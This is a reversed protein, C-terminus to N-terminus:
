LWSRHRITINTRGDPRIGILTIGPEAEYPFLLAPPASRLGDAWNYAIVSDEDSDLQVEIRNFHAVVEGRGKIFSSETANRVRFFVVRDNRFSAREEFYEPHNRFLAKYGDQRSTVMSVNYLRFFEHMAEISDRWPRPPYDYEIQRPDFHYYDCAMMERGTLTPLFAVHGGGYSHVTRGVFLLRTGPPVERRIFDVMENYEPSAVQYRALSENNWLRQINWGTLILLAVLAARPLATWPSRTRLLHSVAVSAPLVAVFLMPIMSRELQLIDVLVPGFGTLCGFGILVPMFFRRIRRRPSVFVGGIGLFLLLPNAQLFHAQLWNGAQRAIEGWAVRAHAATEPRDVEILGFVDSGMVVLYYRFQILVVGAACVLLFRWKPWTWYRPAALIGLAIIAGILLGPPWMILFVSSFILVAGTGWSRRDMFFIRYCCAAVPMVFAAAMNAGVTGYTLLWLYYFQSICLAMLGAAFGGTRGLGILRASLIGLLPLGFLYLMAIGPTYVREMPFVRLFPYLFLGPGVAGSSLAYAQVEGGNWYPSYSQLRPFTESFKWIRFAFSPHDDRIMLEWGTHNYLTRLSWLVTILLAAGLLATTWRPRKWLIPTLFATLFVFIMLITNLPAINLFTPRTWRLFFFWRHEVWSSFLALVMFGTLIMLPYLRPSTPRIQEGRSGAAFLFLAVPAWILAHSLLGPRLVKGGTHLTVLLGAGALTAVLLGPLLRIWRSQNDGKM